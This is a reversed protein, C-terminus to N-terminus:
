DDPNGMRISKDSLELWMYRSEGRISKDTRGAAADWKNTNIGYETRLRKTVAIQSIPRPMNNVDCYRRYQDYLTVVPTSPIEGYTVQQEEATYVLCREDVFLGFTDQESRYNGTAKLVVTPDAGLGSEAYKAAGEIMWALIAPGFQGVLRKKLGEDVRDKPVKHLFPIVKIRRFLSDGGGSALTPLTNGTMWLQHTPEWTFAGEGMFRASVRDGGSLSKALGEDLRANEDIEPVTVFRAGKMNAIKEPHDNAARTTLFGVPQNLAYGNPGNGILQALTEMMVGKGNGGSGLGFIIIQASTDGILSYGTLRQVYEIMQDTDEPFTEALFQLWASRDADFDAPVSTSKTHLKAPDPPLLSGTKLDIIGAPTNLEWPHADFDETTSGLAPAAAAITAIKAYAGSTMCKMKWAFDADSDTPLDAVIQQARYLVGGTKSYEQPLWRTNEWVFWQKRVTDYRVSTKHENIFLDANGQDTRSVTASGKRRKTAIDTVPASSGTMVPQPDKNRARGPDLRVPEKGQRTHSGPTTGETRPPASPGNSGPDRGYGGKRLESAAARYDDGHNLHAYAGFKTYPVEPLFDTSSTFVYLRDRAPDKGTSASIGQSKGPRTWYKVGGSEFLKTWGAPVLIDEWATRGEFDDGPSIGGWADPGPAKAPHPTSEGQVKENDAPIHLTALLSLFADADDDTLTPVNAPATGRALVWGKGTEHFWGPTPATVVYGGEGRTEALTQLVDNGTSAGIKALRKARLTEDPINAAATIEHDMWAALEEPTSPRTALKKNGAPASETRFFWHIGGSPSIEVWGANVRAWLEGLGSGDALEKLEDLRDRARGEIEAMVLNGSIRGTVVGVPAGGAFWATLEEPTARREMFEKWKVAPRKEFNPYMPIVSIGHQALYLAASQTQPIDM